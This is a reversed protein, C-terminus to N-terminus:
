KFECRKITRNLCDNYIKDILLLRSYVM